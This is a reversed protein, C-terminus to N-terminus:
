HWPYADLCALDYSKGNYQKTGPGVTNTDCYRRVDPETDVVPGPMYAAGLASRELRSV